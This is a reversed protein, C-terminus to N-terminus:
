MNLGQRYEGFPVLLEFGIVDQVLATYTVTANNDMHYFVTPTRYSRVPLLSLPSSCDPYFSPSFARLHATLLLFTDRLLLLTCSLTYLLLLELM